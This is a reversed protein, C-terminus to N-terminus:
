LSTFRWPWTHRHNPAHHAAELAQHLIEKSVEGPEYLHITRRNLLIDHIM